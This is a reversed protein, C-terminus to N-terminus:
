AQKKSQRNAVFAVVTGSIAVAGAIMAPIMNYGTSGLTSTAGLVSSQANVSVTLAMVAVM